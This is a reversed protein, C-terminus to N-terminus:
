DLGEKMRNIMFVFVFYSIIFLPSFVFMIYGPIIFSVGFTILGPIISVLGAINYFEKFSALLGGAKRMSLWLIFVVLLPFVLILLIATIIHQPLRRSAFSMQATLLCDSILEKPSNWTSGKPFLKNAKKGQPYLYQISEFYTNDKIEHKDNPQKLPVIVDYMEPRYFFVYDIEDTYTKIGLLTLMTYKLHIKGLEDLTKQDLEKLRAITQEDNLSEDQKQLYLIYTLYNLKNNDERTLKKEKYKPLTEKILQHCKDVNNEITNGLDFVFHINVKKNESSSMFQYVEHVPKDTGKLVTRKNETKKSIHTNKLAEFNFETNINNEKTGEEVLKIKGFNKRLVYKENVSFKLSITLLGLILSFILLTFLVSMGRFRRAKDPIFPSLLFDKFEQM